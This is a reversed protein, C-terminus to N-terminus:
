PALGIGLLAREVRIRPLRRCRGAATTSATGAEDDQSPARWGGEHAGRSPETTMAAGKGRRRTRMSDLARTGHPSGPESRARGLADELNALRDPGLVTSLHEERARVLADIRAALPADDPTPELARPRRDAGRHLSQLLGRRELDDVRRKVGMPDAGLARALARLSCESREVAGRLVAARRPTLGLRALERAWEARLMRIFRDLRFGIGQGLQLPAASRPGLGRASGSTRPLM